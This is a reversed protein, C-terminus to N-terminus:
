IMYIHQTILRDGDSSKLLVTGDDPTIFGQLSGDDIRPTVQIHQQGFDFAPPKRQGLDPLGVGVDVMRTAGGLQRFLELQGDHPRVRGILEPNVAQGLLAAHEAKRMRIREGGRAPQKVAVRHGHAVAGQMHTVAGAVRRTMHHKIRGVCAASKHTIHQKGAGNAAGIERLAVVAGQDGADHLAQPGHTVGRDEDGAVPGLAREPLLPM